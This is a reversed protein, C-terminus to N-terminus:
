LVAEFINSFLKSYLHFNMLFDLIKLLLLQMKHLLITLKLNLNFHNLTRPNQIRMFTFLHLFHFKNFLILRFAVLIVSILHIRTFSIYLLIKTQGSKASPCQKLYNRRIHLLSEQM